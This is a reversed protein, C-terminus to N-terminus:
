RGIVKSTLRDVLLRQSGTLGVLLRDQRPFLILIPIFSNASLSYLLTLPRYAPPPHIIREHM